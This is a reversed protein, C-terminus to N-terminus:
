TSTEDGRGGAGGSNMGRRRLPGIKRDQPLSLQERGSLGAPRRLHTCQANPSLMMAGRTSLTSHYIDSIPIRVGHRYITSHFHYPADLHTGNHTCLQVFEVAWGEADPLDKTDLGDFFLKVQEAGEEHRIYDINPQMMPPDSIVDNELYISLDIFRPM